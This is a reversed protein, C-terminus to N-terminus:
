SHGAYLHLSCFSVMTLIVAMTEMRSSSMMVKLRPRGGKILGVTGGIPDLSKITM